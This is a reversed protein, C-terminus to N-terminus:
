KRQWPLLTWIRTTSRTAFGVTVLALAAVLLSLTIGTRNNGNRTVDSSRLNVPLLKDSTDSWIDKLFPLLSTGGTGKKDLSQYNGENAKRAPLIVYMKVIKIHYDRLSVLASLSHNYCSKLSENCSSTVFDRLSYPLQELYEILHKHEPPMFDRMRVLFERKEQTHKVGLFADLVQLTTSQAASGGTLKVPTDSVGEYILGDPLPSSEGGWGGLFPRIVNFFLKADLQDRMRSLSDEMAKMAKSVDLLCKAIEEETKEEHITEGVGHKKSSGVLNLIREVSKLCKAFSLEVMFTVICFWDGGREGPLHYLCELNEFNFPGNPDILSWNALALDVHALIPQVGLQKSINCYPIAITRPLVKPMGQDGDQWIYGATILSLQLHALRLQHHGVLQSPDLLPLQEVATRLTKQKVLVPLSTALDNWPKFYAPLSKLPNNLMFGTECNANYKSLDFESQDNSEM